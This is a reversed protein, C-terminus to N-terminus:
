IESEEDVLFTMVDVQLAKCMRYYEMVELKRTGALIASLIPFPIGANDSLFKKKIGHDTLYANIRKGVM